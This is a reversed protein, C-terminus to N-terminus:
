RRHQALPDGRRPPTRVAQLAPAATAAGRMRSGRDVGRRRVDDHVHAGDRDLATRPEPNSHSARARRPEGALPLVAAADVGMSPDAARHAPVSPDAAVSRAAVDSGSADRSPDQEPTAGTRATASKPTTSASAASPPLVLDVDEEDDNEDVRELELVTSRIPTRGLMRSPLVPLARGHEGGRAPALRRAFDMM